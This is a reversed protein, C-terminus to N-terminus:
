TFALRSDACEDRLVKWCSRPGGVDALMYPDAAPHEVSLVDSFGSTPDDNDYSGADGAAASLSQGQLAAQIFLNHMARLDGASDPDTIPTGQVLFEEWEGWSCSIADATNSSIAAEFADVFAQDTNPAQYVAIKADPALGGSQEVDLTVCAEEVREVVRCESEVLLQCEVNLFSQRGRLCQGRGRACTRGPKSSEISVAADFRSFRRIQNQEVGIRQRVDSGRTRDPHNYQAPDHKIAPSEVPDKRIRTFLDCRPVLL